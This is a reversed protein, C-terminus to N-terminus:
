HIEKYGLSLLFESIEKQKKKIKEIHAPAYTKYFNQREMNKNYQKKNADNKAKTREKAAKVKAEVQKKPVFLIYFFDIIKVGLTTNKRTANITAIIRNKFTFDEYPKWFDSIETEEYTYSSKIVYEYNKIAYMHYRFTRCDLDMEMICDDEQLTSYESHKLSPIYIFFLRSDPKIICEQFADITKLYEQIFNCVRKENITIQRLFDCKDAADHLMETLGLAPNKAIQEMIELKRKAEQIEISM